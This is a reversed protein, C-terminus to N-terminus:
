LLSHNEKIKLMYDYLQTGFRELSFKESVIQQCRLSQDEIEYMTKSLAWEIGKQISKITWDEMIFGVDEIGDFAAWPTVIPILGMKMSNIVAGPCGGETGSPYLIFNCKSVVEKMKDSNVNLFGYTLINPTMQSKMAEFFDDEIPGVWHLTLEPHDRFYEILLSAGKLVNGGSAMFFFHNGPVYHKEYSIATSSQDICTIKPQCDKPYTQVTYSSGIQLIYDAMQSAQHPKTMRRYSMKGGYTQNLYDTMTIIQKNAHEWYAGTAFYIKKANSWKECARNFNPELGIVVSPNIHKPLIKKSRFDQLYVNYGLQKFVEVMKITEKMNQHKSMLTGDNLHRFADPLYAFYLWPANDKLKFIIHDSRFIVVLRKITIKIICDIIM